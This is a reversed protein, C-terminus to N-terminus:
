AGPPLDWDPLANTERLRALAAQEAARMRTRAAETTDDYGALHLWGHALYLALEDGPTHGHRTARAAAREASVLIEGATGDDPDGPFTIVDTPSPDDLFRHHIDALATEDLLAVSLDGAPVAFRPDADLSRILSEIAGAPMQEAPPFACAVEIIRETM